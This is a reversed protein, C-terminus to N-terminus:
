RQQRPLSQTSGLGVQAITKGTAPEVVDSTQVGARWGGSYLKGDMEDWNFLQKAM